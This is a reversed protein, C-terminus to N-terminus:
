AFGFLVIITCREAFFKLFTKVLSLFSEKTFVVFAKRPKQEFLFDGGVSFSSYSDRKSTKQSHLPSKEFFDKAVGGNRWGSLGSNLLFGGPRIGM